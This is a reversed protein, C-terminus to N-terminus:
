PIIQSEKKLFADVFLTNRQTKELQINVDYVSELIPHSLVQQPSDDLVLRGRKLLLVRDCFAAALNLDHLAIISIIGQQQTINKITQMSALQHKLDLASTPEDFLIMPPKRVLLRAMAVMQQQGGSLEYIQREALHNINLSILTKEVFQLEEEKVRWNTNSKLALLVSDFVKLAIYVSYQQPMMGVTQSWLKAPTKALSQQNVVVDGQSKIIGALAKFLTSKGSANPGILGILKGAQLNNINIDFLVQKQAYHVNLQHIYATHNQINHIM